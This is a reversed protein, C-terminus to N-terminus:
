QFLDDSPPKAPENEDRKAAIGLSELTKAYTKFHVKALTQLRGTGYRAAIDAAVKDVLDGAGKPLRAGLTEGMKALKYVFADRALISAAAVAIDQEARVKQTLKIKRGKAMLARIILGENGFKDAIAADCGPVKELLNELARAHGWALLQNLNRIKGYLRNYAEPGIVILSHAEPIIKKIKLAIAAIRTDGKVLKSDKVGAKELLPATSSDVYAAAVVLPGFFDGKGSEDIGAHPSFEEPVVEEKTYVLQKLIEPELVFIVFDETGKGQVMIKGSRYASVRLKDLSTNWLANPDTEKIEWGRTELYERLAAIEGASAKCVFSTLAPNPM